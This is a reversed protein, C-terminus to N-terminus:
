FRVTDLQELLYDTVLKVTAYLAAEMPEIKDNMKLIESMEKLIFYANTFRYRIKAVLELTICDLDDIESVELKDIYGCGMKLTEELFHAHESLYMKEDADMGERKLSREFKDRVIQKFVNLRNANLSILYLSRTNNWKGLYKDKDQALKDATIDVGGDGGSVYGFLVEIGGGAEALKEFSEEYVVLELPKDNFYSFNMASTSTLLRGNRVDKQYQELLVALKNGFYDRNGSAKSLLTALSYGLDLDTKHVLNRYFLYNVMAYDLLTDMGMDYEAVQDVIYGKVRGVGVEALWGSLSADLDADGTLLYGVLDFDEDAVKKLNMSDYFFKAGGLYSKVEEQILYSEFVSGPKFYKVSFFDEPEKHRYGSLGESIEEKLLSVEKNVVSRAFSIYGTVLKSLDEIYNDMIADHPSGVYEKVSGQGVKEYGTSASVLSGAIFEKDMGSYGLMNGRVAIDLEGLLTQAKPVLKVGQEVFVEALNTGVVTSSQNLM